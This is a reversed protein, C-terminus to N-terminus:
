PEIIRQGHQLVTPLICGTDNGFGITFQVLAFTLPQHSIYETAAMHDTQDTVHPNTM